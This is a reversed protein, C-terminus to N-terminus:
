DFVIDGNIVTKNDNNNTNVNIQANGRSLIAKDGTITTDGEINVIGQSMAEVATKLTTDANLVIEGGKINVTAHKALDALTNDSAHILGNVTIKDAQLNLESEKFVAIAYVGTPTIVISETNEGGIDMIYPESGNYSINGLDVGRSDGATPSIVINEADWVYKTSQNTADKYKLTETATGRPYVTSLDVTTYEANAPTATAVAGLAFLGLNILLCKKLVSRYQATLLGIATKSYKM